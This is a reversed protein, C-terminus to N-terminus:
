CRRPVKEALALAAPPVTAPPRKGSSGETVGTPGDCGPVLVAVAMRGRGRGWAGGGGSGGAGGPMAGGLAGQTKADLGAGGWTSWGRNDRPRPPEKAGAREGRVARERRRGERPRRSVRFAGPLPAPSARRTVGVGDGHPSLFPRRSGRELHLAEQAVPGQSLKEIRQEGAQNAVRPLASGLRGWLFIEPRIM